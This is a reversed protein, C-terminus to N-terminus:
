CCFERWGPRADDNDVQEMGVGRKRRLKNANMKIEGGSFVVNTTWVMRNSILCVSLAFSIFRLCGFRDIVEPPSKRTPVIVGNDEARLAGAIAPIRNQMQGDAPAPQLAPVM